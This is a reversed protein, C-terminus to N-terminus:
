GACTTPMRANARRASSRSRAGTSAPWAAPREGPKQGANARRRANDGERGACFTRVRPRDSRRLLTRDHGPQTFQRLDAVAGDDLGHEDALRARGGPKVDQHFHADAAGSSRRRKRGRSRRPNAPPARPSSSTLPTTRSASRRKSDNAAESSNGGRERPVGPSLPQPHPPQVRPFILTERPIRGGRV